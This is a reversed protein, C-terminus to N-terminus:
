LRQNKSTANTRYNILTRCYYIITNVRSRDNYSYEYAAQQQMRISTFSQNQVTFYALRIKGTFDTM